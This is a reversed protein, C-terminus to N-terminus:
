DPISDIYDRREQEYAQSPKWAHPKMKTNENPPDIFILINNGRNAYSTDLLCMDFEFQREADTAFPGRLIPEGCTIQLLWFQDM